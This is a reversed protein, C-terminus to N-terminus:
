DSKEIAKIIDATKWIRIKKQQQFHKDDSWIGDNVMSLSLAINPVDEIDVNGLIKHAEELYSKYDGREVITINEILLNLLTEFDEKSLGSKEIILDEYKRLSNMLTEPSYLTFPSDILLERSKGNKILASIIVNVDIIM